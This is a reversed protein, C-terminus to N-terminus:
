VERNTPLTLHTYSVALTNARELVDDKNWLSIGHPMSNLAESMKQETQRVLEQAEKIQKEKEKLETIDSYVLLQGGDDLKTESVIWSTDDTFSQEFVNNNESKSLNIRGRYYEKSTMGEPIKLLGVKEVHELMKNRDVGEKLDFGWKKQIEKAVKNGMVLKHDKDWLLIANPTVEIADSLQKLSAERTRGIGPFM